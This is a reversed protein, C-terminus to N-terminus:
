WSKPVDHLVDLLHIMREWMGVAWMSTAIPECSFKVFVLVHAKGFPPRLLRLASTGDGSNLPQFHLTLFHLLKIELSPIGMSLRREHSFLRKSKITPFCWNLNQIIHIQSWILVSNFPYRTAGRFSSELFLLLVSIQQLDHFVWLVNGFALNLSWNKSSRQRKSQCHPRTCRNSSSTTDIPTVNSKQQRNKPDFSRFHAPLHGTKHYWPYRDNGPIMCNRWFIPLRYHWLM